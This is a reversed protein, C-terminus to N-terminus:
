GQWSLVSRFLGEKVIETLGARFARYCLFIARMRKEPVKKILLLGLGRVGDASGQYKESEAPVPLTPSAGGDDRRHPL